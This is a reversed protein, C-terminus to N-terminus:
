HAEEWARCQRELKDAENLWDTWPRTPPIAVGEAALRKVGIGKAFFPLLYFSEWSADYWNVAKIVRGMGLDRFVRNVFETLDAIDRPAVEVAKAIRPGLHERLGKDSVALLGGWGCM